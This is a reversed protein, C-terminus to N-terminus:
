DVLEPHQNHFLDVLAVNGSDTALSLPTNGSKDPGNPDAAEQLLLQAMALDCAQRRARGPPIDWPDLACHLAMKAPLSFALDHLLPQPDACSSMASLIHLPTRGRVDVAGADARRELLVRVIATDCGCEAAYCLPPQVAHDLFPLWSADPDDDLVHQVKEASNALMATMLPSLKAQRPAPPPSPPSGAREHEHSPSPTRRLGAQMELQAPV